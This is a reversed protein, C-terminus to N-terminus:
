DKIDLSIFGDAVNGVFYVKKDKAWALPTDKIDINKISVSLRRAGVGGSTLKKAKISDSLGIAYRPGSRDIFCFVKTKLDWGLKELSEPPFSCYFDVKGSGNLEYYGQTLLGPRRKNEATEVMEWM